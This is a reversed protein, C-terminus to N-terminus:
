GLTDAAVDGPAWAVSAIGDEDPTAIAVDGCDVIDSDIIDCGSDAM